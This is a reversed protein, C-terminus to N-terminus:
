PGFRCQDFKSQDAICVPPLPADTNPGLDPADSGIGADMGVDVAGPVDIRGGTEAIPADAGADVVGLTDLKGEGGAVDATIPADVEGDRGAERVDAPGDLGPADKADISCAGGDSAKRWCRQDCRCEYGSPCGEACPLKGDKPHPDYGCGAMWMAVGAFLAFARM